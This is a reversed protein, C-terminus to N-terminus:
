TSVKPGDHDKKTKITRRKLSQPFPEFGYGNISKVNTFIAFAKPDILAVVEKLKALEKRDFAVQIMQYPTGVYGGKVPIITSGREMDEQIFKNIEEWKTSIITALFSSSLGIFVMEIVMASIFSSIIGYMGSIIGIAFMGSLIIIADILFATISQKVDFYKKMIFYLVDVGGTSGGFLFTIAVGLGLLAGGFIGALLLHVDNNLDFGIPNYPVLRMVITLSIPYVITAILTNISFKWGLVLLGIGFLLVSLVGVTVDVPINWTAKLIIAIGSLGGNIINGPVLFIGTSVAIIISGLAIFLWSKIMNRREKKSLMTFKAM